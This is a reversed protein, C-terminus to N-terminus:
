LIFSRLIVMKNWYEPKVTYFYVSQHWQHIERLILTLVFMISHWSCLRSKFRMSFKHAISLHISSPILSNQPFFIYSSNHSSISRFYQPFKKFLVGTVLITRQFKKFITCFRTKKKNEEYLIIQQIFPFKIKIKLPIYYIKLYNITLM